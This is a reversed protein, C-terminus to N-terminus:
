EKPEDYSELFENLLEYFNEFAEQANPSHFLIINNWSQSIQVNFRTQIWGQFAELLQDDGSQAIGLEWYAYHYGGLFMSLKTISMEGIYIAPKKKIEYLLNILKSM